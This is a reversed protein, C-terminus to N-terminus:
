LCVSASHASFHRDCKGILYKHAFDFCFDKALACEFRENLFSIDGSSM